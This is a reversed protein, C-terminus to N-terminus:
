YSLPTSRKGLFKDINLRANPLMYFVQNLFLLSDSFIGRCNTPVQWSSMWIDKFLYSLSCSKVVYIFMIVRQNMWKLDYKVLLMERGWFWLCKSEKLSGLKVKLEQSGVQDSLWMTTEYQTLLPSFLGHSIWNLLCDAFPNYAIKTGKQLLFAFGQSFKMLLMWLFCAQEWM